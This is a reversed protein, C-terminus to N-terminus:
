RRTTALAGLLRSEPATGSIHRTGRMSRRTPQADWGPFFTLRTRTEIESIDVLYDDPEDSSPATQPILFAAVAVNGPRNWPYRFPDLTICFYADPVPVQHGDSRTIVIPNVDFVPGVIAWVHDRQGPLDEIDRIANELKAWVGTNLSGRQPSMNSMFFTEMQALRGFQTNIAANPAMHGVHYQVGLHTGFTGNDLRSTEALREDAYYVHPRDYDVSDKANAVRYASWLPQRRSPAYGAVYGHNVLIQVPHDPDGNLPAGRFLFLDILHALHKSDPHVSSHDTM